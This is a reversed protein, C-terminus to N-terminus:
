DPAKHAAQAAASRVRDNMMVAGDIMWLDRLDGPQDLSSNWGRQLLQSMEDLRGEWYFLRSLTYRVRAASTGRSSQTM